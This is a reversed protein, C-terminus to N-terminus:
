YQSIIEGHQVRSRDELIRMGSGSSAIKTGNYQLLSFLSFSCVWFLGLWKFPKAPMAIKLVASCQPTFQSNLDDQQRRV